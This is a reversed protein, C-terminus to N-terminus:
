DQRLTEKLAQNMVQAKELAQHDKLIGMEHNGQGILAYWFDLNLFNAIYRFQNVINLGKIRPLDGGVLVLIIKKHAMIQRFNKQTALLESWRELFITLRSSMGYWYIPTALVVLESQEVGKMIGYFDDSTKQWKQDDRHDVIECIQQKRLDIEDYKLDRLLLRSLYRSNSNERSSASILTIKTTHKKQAKNIKEVSLNDDEEMM